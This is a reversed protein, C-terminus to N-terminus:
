AQKPCESNRHGPSLCFQCKHARKIKQQCAGGPEVGGCAGTGSAFSFCLPTGAQDKTKGKGKGKQDQQKGDASPTWPRKRLRDLEEREARLRKARALRKDRNAQRKRGGENGEDRDAEVVEAGGPMHALAIQEAPALPTGKAGAATWAAAPHRVQESWYEEDTALVRFCTTWPNDPDWDQPMVQGKAADVMLRRRIKDLREARAKDEAQYILGWCKPWQLVLREIAKEYIQLSALSSISLMLCAVKDVRWSTLWQQLNQPGPLERMMYSGDGLPHYVRFKQAKQCKRGFPTFIALDAYPAAKLIFTKRHLAALQGDSPEEEEPPPSGMITVYASMWQDVQDRTAPALESDDSQDVLASMKLVRDKLAGAGPSGEAQGGDAGTAGPANGSNAAEWPDVDKFEAIPLGSWMHVLKRSTRWVLGVHAAQVASFGAGAATSAQVAGQVIVTKPLAAILRVHHGPDGVQQLFSGWLGDPVELFDLLERLTTIAQLDTEAPLASAAM